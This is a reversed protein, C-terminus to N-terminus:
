RKAQLAIELRDWLELRDIGAMAAATCFVLGALAWIGVGLQIDGVVGLKLMAVLISLLFVELMNWPESLQFLRTVGRAGPLAVGFRLPAAVYLLGGVLSLPAILTFAVAAMAVLPHGERLMAAAAELITLERRVSGADVTISPFLHALAMFVLAAASFGTARALSRPRNQYLMEGCRCCHAADGEVLRPASQLTDCFPCAVEIPADDIRPWSLGAHISKM